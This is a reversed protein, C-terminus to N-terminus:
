SDLTTIGERIAYKTLGAVSDICLKAMVRERYTGVTKPSLGLVGAVEKTAKGEALLQLVERERPTLMTTSRRGNGNDRHLQVIAGAIDPSLYVAGRAVTKIALTLEDVASNKLLYGSAGAAIAAEVFSRESHMSLCLIPVKTEALIARIADIGNMGPMTIDMVIADPRLAATAAIAERGDKARGAVELDTDDSLVSRLGDLVIEHDDVLLIRTSV